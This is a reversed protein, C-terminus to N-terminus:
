KRNVTERIRLFQRRSVSLYSALENFPLRIIDEPCRVILDRYRESPTKSYFDLYRRYAEDLLVSTASEFLAQQPTMGIKRIDALPIRLVDTDEGAIISTLCPKGFLFSRVYDTTVEGAFSFGTVCLSGDSAVTCFKFYGSRVVAFWRCVAGQAVLCEGKVYRYPEGHEECYRQLPGFDIRNIFDNLRAMTTRDAFTIIKKSQEGRHSM